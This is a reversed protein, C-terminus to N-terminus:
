AQGRKRRATGAARRPAIAVSPGAPPSSRPAALHRGLSRVTGHTLLDSMTLGSWGQDHLGRLVAFLQLSHGGLDFFPTDRPVDTLGLATSWLESVLDEATRLNEGQRVPTTSPERLAPVSDEPLASRLARILAPHGEAGYITRVEATVTGDPAVEVKCAVTDPLSMLVAAVAETPDCPHSGRGVTGVARGDASRLTLSGEVETLSVVRGRNGVAGAVAPAAAHDVGIVTQADTCLDALEDPRHQWGTALVTCGGVLPATWMEWPAGPGTAARTVVWEDDPRLGLVTAADVACGVVEDCHHHRVAPALSSGGEPVLIGGSLAPPRDDGTTDDAAGATTTELCESAALCRIHAWEPRIDRAPTVVLSVRLSDLIAVRLPAPHRPDLQVVVAGTMLVGLVSVPVWVSDTVVVAVRDGAGVGDERLRAALRRALGDLEVFNLQGSGDRFATRGPHTRSREAVREVLGPGAEGSGHTSVEHLSRDPACAALVDLFRVWRNLLRQADDSSFRRTDITLKLCPPGSPFGATLVYETSEHVGVYRASLDPGLLREALADQPYGEVAILYRFPTGGGTEPRASMAARAREQGAARELALSRLWEGVPVDAFEVRLPISAVCLGVTDSGLAGRTDTVSGIVLEDPGLGGERLALAWAAHQLTALTVEHIRAGRSWMDLQDADIPLVNDTWVGPRAARPRDAWVRAGTNSAGRQEWFSADEVRHRRTEEALRAAHAAFSSDGEAQVVADTYHQWWEEFLRATSWGDLIVHHHTWVMEWEDRALRIMTVRSLPARTLDFGRARDERLFDSLQDAPGRDTDHRLDIWTVPMDAADLVVNVPQSSHEWSVATRLAAHRAVISEWAAEVRGPDLRGVLSFRMQVVYLGPEDEALSSFLLGAQAPTLAFVDSVRATM